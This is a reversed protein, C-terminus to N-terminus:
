ASRMAEFIPHRRVVDQFDLHNQHIALDGFEAAIIEVRLAVVQEPEGDTRLPLEPDHRLHRHADQPLRFASARHEDAKRGGFEALEQTAAMM